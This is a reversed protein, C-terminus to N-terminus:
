IGVDMLMRGLASSVEHVAAITRRYDMRTPGIVAVSGLAPGEARYSASIVSCYQMEQLPIESGIWVAVDDSVLADALIELLRRRHELAGIVQRVTELDAFKAEDVINSTGELFIRESEHQSLDDRLANSVTAVADRLELPFRDLSGAIRAAAGELPTDVVMRNLMEAAHDLQVDDLSEPILAVHNEVRGTDTVLIIMARDGALRVLEVHRVLSRDLSPAFVLAAHDTLSSLLAATRRLSDELEWRPEGFFTRIRRVDTVPLRVGTGWADVFYRYGADTPVRGASTHPQYVYGADELAGMENRVTAASVDLRATEVVTKSGVPEGSRVYHSVIARLIAAKRENLAGPHMVVDRM